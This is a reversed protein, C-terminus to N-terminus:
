VTIRIGKRRSRRPRPVREGAWLIDEFDLPQRAFGLRMAPTQGDNGVFTWNNVTRFITLYKEVMRPNYPSYGHWVANHGSSTGVPREFANFLRRTKLFLNDIRALGAELFMDAIRDEDISAKATLWSVAKHPENMTPTPHEVWGDAWKGYSQAEAIRAKM